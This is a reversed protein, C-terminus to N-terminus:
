RRVVRRANYLVTSVNRVICAFLHSTSFHNGNLPQLLVIESEIFSRNQLLFSDGSGFVSVCFGLFSRQHLRRNLPRSGRTGISRGGTVLGDTGGAITRSCIWFVLVKEGVGSNLLGSGGDRASVANATPEFIASAPPAAASAAIPVVMAAVSSAIPTTASNRSESFSSVLGISVFVAVREVCSIADPNDCFSTDGSDISM